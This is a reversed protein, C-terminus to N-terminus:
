KKKRKDRNKNLNLLHNNLRNEQPNRFDILYLRNGYLKFDSSNIKFFGKDVIKLKLDKKLEFTIFSGLRSVVLIYYKEKKNIIEKAFTLQELSLEPTAESKVELYIKKGTKSTLLFDSEGKEYKIIKSNTNSNRSVKFGKKYYYEQVLAESINNM